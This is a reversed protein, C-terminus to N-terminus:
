VVANNGEPLGIQLLSQLIEIPKTSDKAKKKEQMLLVSTALSTLRRHEVINDYNKLVFMKEWLDEKRHRHFDEAEEITKKVFEVDEM